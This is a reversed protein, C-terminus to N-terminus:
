ALRETRAEAADIAEPTSWVWLAYGVTSEKAEHAPSFSGLWARIAKAAMARDVRSDFKPIEGGEFFLRRAERKYEQPVFPLNTRRFFAKEDAGFIAEPMDFNPVPFFTLGDKVVDPIASM